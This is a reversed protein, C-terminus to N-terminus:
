RRPSHRRRLPPAKRHPHDQRCGSPQHHRVHATHSRRRTVRAAADSYPLRAVVFSGLNLSYLATTDDRPAFPARSSVLTAYLLSYNLSTESCLLACTVVHTRRSSTAFM